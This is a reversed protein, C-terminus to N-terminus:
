VLKRSLTKLLTVDPKKIFKIVAYIAVFVSRSSLYILLIMSSKLISTQYMVYFVIFICSIHVLYIHM